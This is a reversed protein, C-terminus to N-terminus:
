TEMTAKESLYETRDPATAVRITEALVEEASAVWARFDGNDIRAPLDKLRDLDFRSDTIAYGLSAAELANGTQEVHGEVPVLFLPKGLWIAECVSEFGATSVVARAGAMLTLFKDADLSHFALNPEVQEVPPAGPRDYFCHLITEPHRRHWTVIEERYGHNLLYVLYYAGPTPTRASLERRLLPPGVVLRRTEVPPAPFFSLALKWSRAGVIGAFLKYGLRQLRLGPPRAGRPHFIMFQHAMAIVPVRPPRTVQLLGTLPEFFNLILDPATRQILGDLTRVSKRYTPLRRFANAVTRAVSISRNGRLLFGPSPLRM